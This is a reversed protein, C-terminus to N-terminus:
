IRSYLTSYEKQKSPQNGSQSLPRSYGSAAYRNRSSQVDAPSGRVLSTLCKARLIFIISTALPRKYVVTSLPSITTCTGLTGTGIKLTTSRQCKPVSGSGAKKKLPQCPALLFILIKVIKAWQTSKSPVKVDTKLTLFGFLHWLINFDLNKLRKRKTISPDPDTCFILSGSVCCKMKKALQFLYRVWTGTDFQQLLKSNLDVTGAGASRLQNTVTQTPNSFFCKTDNNIKHFNETYNLWSFSNRDLNRSSLNPIQYIISVYFFNLQYHLRKLEESM